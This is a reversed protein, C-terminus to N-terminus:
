EPLPVHDIVQIVANERYVDEITVKAMGGNKDKLLIGPGKM